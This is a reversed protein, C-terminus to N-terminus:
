RASVPAPPQLPIRVVFEAGRGAGASAAHVVGGHLETLAKVVSLGVGLGTTSRAATREGQVFAEFVHPLVAPDIGAGSDKVRLEARDGFRALSLVVQDGKRTFKCANGLLNGAIQTLRTGDAEAWVSEEPVAVLFTVGHDELMARFDEAVRLALDRLDVRSRRLTLKGREIRSVDLLDDVLRALHEAQRRVIRRARKASDSGPDQELIHTGTVIAALPNRLEHALTALFEGKRRNAEHLREDAEHRETVDDICLLVEAATPTRRATLRAFAPAGGSVDGRPALAVEIAVHGEPGM